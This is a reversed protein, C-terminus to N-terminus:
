AAMEIAQLSRIRRDIETVKAAFAANLARKEAELARIQEARPDFDDPIEVEVNHECIWIRGYKSKEEWDRMDFPLFAFDGCELNGAPDWYVHGKITHKM